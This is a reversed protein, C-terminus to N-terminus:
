DSNQRRLTLGTTLVGLVVLVVGWALNGAALLYVGVGAFLLGPLFPIVALVMAVTVLIAAGLWGAATRGATKLIAPMRRGATMAVAYLLAALLFGLGLVAVGVLVAGM